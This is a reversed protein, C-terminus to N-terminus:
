KEVFGSICLEESVDITVSEIIGSVLWILCFLLSRFYRLAGNGSIEYVKISHLNACGLSLQM